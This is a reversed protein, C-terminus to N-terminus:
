LYFIKRLELIHIKKGGVAEELEDNIESYPITYKGKPIIINGKLEEEIETRIKKYHYFLDTYKGPAMAELHYIMRYVSSFLANTQTDIFHKDFIYEGSLKEGINSIIEM